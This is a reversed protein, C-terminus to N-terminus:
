CVREIENCSTNPTIISNHVGQRDGQRARARRARSRFGAALNCPIARTIGAPTTTASLHSTILYMWYTSVARFVVVLTDIIGHCLLVVIRTVGRLRRM